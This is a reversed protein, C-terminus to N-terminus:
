DNHHRQDAVHRSAPIQKSILDILQGRRRSKAPPKHRFTWERNV